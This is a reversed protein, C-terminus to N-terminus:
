ESAGASIQGDGCSVKHGYSRENMGIMAKVLQCQDRFDFLEKPKIDLM